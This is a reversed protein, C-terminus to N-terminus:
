KLGIESINQMGTGKHNKLCTKFDDVMRTTPTVIVIYHTTYYQELLMLLHVEQNHLDFTLLSLSSV